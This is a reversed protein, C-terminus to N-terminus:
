PTGDTMTMSLVASFFFRTVAPRHLLGSLTCSNWVAVNKKEEM